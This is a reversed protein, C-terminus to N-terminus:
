MCSDPLVKKLASEPLVVKLQSKPHCSRLLTKLQPCQESKELLKASESELLRTTTEVHLDASAGIPAERNDGIAELGVALSSVIEEEVDEAKSLVKTPTCPSTPEYDM